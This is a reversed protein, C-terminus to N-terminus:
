VRGRERCAHAVREDDLRVPVHARHERLPSRRLQTTGSDSGLTLAARDFQRLAESLPSRVRTRAPTEMTQLPGNVINTEGLVFLTSTQALERQAVYRRNLAM